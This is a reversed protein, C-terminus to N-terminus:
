MTPACTSPFRRATSCSTRPTSPTSTAELDKFKIPPPAFLKAAMEIRDFEKGQNQPAMPGTGLQELGGGKFRDTKDQHNM